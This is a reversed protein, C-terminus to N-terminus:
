RHRRCPRSPSGRTVRGSAPRSSIASDGSDAPASSAVGAMGMSRAMVSVSRSCQAYRGIALGGTGPGGEVEDFILAGALPAAGDAPAYLRSAPRVDEGSYNEVVFTYRSNFDSWRQFYNLVERWPAAVEKYAALVAVLSGFDLDGKIVLYGGVSYFFFPTLQNLFNNIIKITFKREFIAIRIVTNKRVHLPTVDRADNSTWQQGAQQNTVGNPEPLLNLLRQGLPSMCSFKVGCDPSSNAAPIKNGPFQQGTLPDIIPQISGNTIRTQSFDGM